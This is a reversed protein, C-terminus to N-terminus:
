GRAVLLAHPDSANGAPSHESTRGVAGVAAALLPELWDLARGSATAFEYGRHLAADALPSWSLGHHRAFREPCLLLAHGALTEAVATSTSTADRIREDALGARAAAKAFREAAFGITDEATILIPPAPERSGRPPRLNELHIAQREAQNGALGLPVAHAAVEPPVRLLTVTLSGDALGVAREATDMERVAITVGRETGARILRALSAPECDPPVGLVCEADARASRAVQRLHDVRGLVDKAYPRLLNGLETTTIQRRSRDFLAGGFHRELTKIRRSLVPQAIHLTDAAASFSGEEVVAVYAELHALLDVGAHM